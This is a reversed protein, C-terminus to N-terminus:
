CLFSFNTLHLSVFPPFLTSIDYSLISLNMCECMKQLRIKEMRTIKLKFSLFCIPRQRKFRSLLYLDCREAWWLQSHYSDLNGCWLWESPLFLRIKPSILFFSFGPFSSGPLRIFLHISDFSNCNRFISRKAVIRSYKGEYVRMRVFWFTMTRRGCSNSESLHIMRDNNSLM